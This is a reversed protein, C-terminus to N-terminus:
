VRMELRDPGEASQRATRQLPLAIRNALATRTHPVTALVSSGLSPAHVARLLRRSLLVPAPRGNRAM